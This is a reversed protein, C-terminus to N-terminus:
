QDVGLRTIGELANGLGLHLVENQLLHRVNVVAIDAAQGSLDLLDAIRDFQREQVLIEIPLVRQTRRLTHQEVARGTAALRQDGLRDGVRQGLLHGLHASLVGTLRLGVEEVDLAGFQQVLEDALGLAVDPQNELPGPLLGRLAGRHDHEEVLHVGDEAGAAGTDAGIDLGRDHRLQEALDVTDLAQFVDDDDAGGVALVHDVGRDQPRAAKVDLDLDFTGIGFRRLVDEALVQRHIQRYVGVIERLETAIPRQADLRHDLLDDVPHVGLDVVVAEKFDGVGVAVFLHHVELVEVGARHNLVNDVPGLLVRDFRHEFRALM